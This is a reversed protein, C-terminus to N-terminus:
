DVSLKAIIIAEWLHFTIRDGAKQPTLIARVPQPAQFLMARLRIKNLESVGAREAYEHFDLVMALLEQHVLLFGAMRLGDQWEELSLCRQHSPDRLKEYANIYRGAQRQLWAKKGHLRSGPVVNDVVALWGGPRLLRAVQRLFAGVDPFHHAALRCTILDFGAAAFPLAQADAACVVVGPLGKEAALQRTKALMPVTLDAAVVRRVHPALLHATHGAGTAVDLALWDPELPLLDRMRGLSAGSAHVASHAYAAARPGFQSEIQHVSM